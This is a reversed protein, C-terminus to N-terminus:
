LRAERQVIDNWVANEMTARFRTLGTLRKKREDFEARVRAQQDESFSAFIAKTDLTAMEKTPRIFGEVKKRERLHEPSTVVPKGSEEVWSECREANRFLSEPTHLRLESMYFDRTRVFECLKRFRVVPDQEKGLSTALLRAYASKRNTTLKLSRGFVDNYAEHLAEVLIRQAVPPGQKIGHKIAPRGARGRKRNWWESAELELLFRDVENPTWSWRLSFFVLADGDVSGAEHCGVLDIFAEPHSFRRPKLWAPSQFFRSLLEM